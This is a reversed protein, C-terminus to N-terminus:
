DNDLDTSIVDSIPETTTLGADETAEKFLGQRLNRLFTLGEQHAILLDLDGDRDLDSAILRHVEGLEVPPLSREGVPQLAGELTNRYLELADASATALDLDGEIDFDLAVAASLSRADLGYAATSDTFQGEGNGLWFAVGGGTGLLDIAGDNNLDFATLESVPPASQPSGPQWDDKALRIELAPGGETTVVRALDALGDGDFDEVTMARSHTAAAGEVATARFRIAVPEGFTTTAPEDVFRAVPIGPINTRLEDLGRQYMIEARLVNDLIISPRGARELDDDELAQLLLDLQDSAVQPAQWLLERIRLYVTSATARDERDLASRGLKLLSVLNEPRLEYLREIARREAEKAEAGRMSSAHQYLAYLTELDDPRAQAAIQLAELAAERDGSWVLVAGRISLLDPREPVLRLAEDIREFAEEMKQQRLLAIALNAHGLPDGPVEEILQRYVAEAEGERENELLALGRNRLEVAEPSLASLAPPAAISLTM